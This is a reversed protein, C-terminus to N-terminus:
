DGELNKIIMAINVQQGDPGEHRTREVFDAQSKGLLESAKLRDKTSEEENKITDTWYKQRDQRTMIDSKIGILERNAIAKQIKDLKLLRCGAVEPNAYGAIKAAQTRNGDYVECFRAQKPSYYEEITM